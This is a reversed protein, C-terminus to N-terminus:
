GSVRTQKEWLAPRPSDMKYVSRRTVQWSTLPRCHRASGCWGFTGSSTPYRRACGLFSISEIIRAAMMAFNTILM